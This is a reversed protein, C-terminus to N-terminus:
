VTAGRDRSLIRQVLTVALVLVFFVVTLASAIGIQGREFARKVAEYMLTTTAYQPGGQTLIQVQDFLRFALIATLLVVFLLPRRLGPLTVHVFRAWAGSGDIRAAEYREEPIGQLGALLILMQFGAGQWISLLMLAPLAFLSDRLFDVPEWLGLSVLGLLVNLPGDPGPAYLLQWVVAVLAMPFLVPLFFLGRFFAIGPLRRDVLLALGLALATQLPVIVLAFLLNNRLAAWFVPDAFLADYSETGVYRAASPASLRLDSFSLAVAGLFPLAVFLLLLLLAPLAMLLGARAETSARTFAAARM